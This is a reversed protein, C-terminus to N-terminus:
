LLFQQASPTVANTVAPGCPLLHPRQLLQWMFPSSLSEPCLSCLPPPPLRCPVGAPSLLQPRCVPPLSTSPVSIQNWRSASLLLLQAAHVSPQGRPPPPPCPSQSLAVGGRGGRGFSWLASISPFGEAELQRGTEREKERAQVGASGSVLGCSSSAGKSVTQSGSCGGIHAARGPCAAQTGDRPSRRWGMKLAKGWRGGEGETTGRM